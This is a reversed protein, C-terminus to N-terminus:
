PQMRMVAYGLLGLATVLIIAWYAVGVLIAKPITRRWSQGFARRLATVFHWALYMFAVLVFLGVVSDFPVLGRVITVLAFVAFVASHWNLSFYLHAPYRLRPKRWCSWTLLAFVPMLVFMARALATEVERNLASGDTAARELQEVGFFRAPWGRAVIEREEPTLPGTSGDDRLSVQAMQRLSRGTVNEIVPKSAFFVLSCLLYLRLPSLWRARRGALFDETLQGPAVLLSKMTAPIKGDWHALEHTTDKLLEWVSPNPAPVKQGCAACYPGTMPAGCNLCPPPAPM